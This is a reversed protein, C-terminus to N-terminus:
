GLRGGNCDECVKDIIPERTWHETQCWGYGRAQMAQRMQHAQFRDGIPRRHPRNIFGQKM